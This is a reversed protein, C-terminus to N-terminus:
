QTMFRLRHGEASLMPLAVVDKCTRSRNRDATNDNLAAAIQRELLTIESLAAGVAGEAAALRATYQDQLQQRTAREIAINGQNRDFIPLELSISPGVNRVNSNDSGGSVGFTLNPFQALIAARVKADAARYGLRLAILDPRRNPLDPLDRRILDPDLRPLDARDVLPIPVDPALGLLAALQHRRSLQLRQLDALQTRASQVAAIDPAVTALTANGAQM